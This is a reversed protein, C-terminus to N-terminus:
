QLILLYKNNSIISSEKMKKNRGLQVETKVRKKGFNLIEPSKINRSPLYQPRDSLLFVFDVNRLLLVDVTCGQSLV